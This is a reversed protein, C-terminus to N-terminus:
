NHYPVIDFPYDKERVALRFVFLPYHLPGV